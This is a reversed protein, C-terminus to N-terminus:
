SIYYVTMYYKQTDDWSPRLKSYYSKQDTIKQEILKMLEHDIRATYLEICVNPENFYAVNDAGFPDSDMEFFAAYPLVQQSSFHDLAYNTIKKETELEQLLTVLDDIRM